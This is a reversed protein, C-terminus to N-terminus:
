FFFFLGLDHLPCSFFGLEQLEQLPPLARCWWRCAPRPGHALGPLRPPPGLAGATGPDVVSRVSSRIKPRSCAEHFNISGGKQQQFRASVGDWLRGLHTPGLTPADGKVKVQSLSHFLFRTPVGGSVSPKRKLPKIEGPDPM